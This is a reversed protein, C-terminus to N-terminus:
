NRLQESCTKIKLVVDQAVEMIEAAAKVDEGVFLQLGVVLPELISASPSNRLVDLAQKGYGKAALGVFFDINDFIAKEVAKTDALHKKVAELAEDPQNFEIFLLSALCAWVWPDDPKLEIAKRYIQEAEKYRKLKWHLFIGFMVLISFSDPELEIAKRYAQEAEQYRKIKQLILGLM